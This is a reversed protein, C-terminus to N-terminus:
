DVKKLQNLIKESEKSIESPFKLDVMIYQDGRLVDYGKYKLGKGKLKMKKGIGSLKPVSVKVTAGDITKFEINGGLVMIEYPINLKSLLGFNKLITFKSEDIQFALVLDGFMETTGDSFYHGKGIIQMQENPMIGHPISVEVIEEKTETGKGDCTNCANTIKFGRGECGRCSISQQITGFQDRQIILEIGKGDCTTCRVVDDGGKGDCTTCKLIRKYKFKKTVGNYVEEMSLNVRQFITFRQMNRSERQQKRISNFVDSMDSFGHRGQQRGQNGNMFVDYGVQDYRAKHDADSLIEYAEAVDKFKAEATKDDQNKDPHYKMAMKRYAKKIATADAEKTIGLTNYLDKSM